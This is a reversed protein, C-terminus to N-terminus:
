SEASCRRYVYPLGWDADTEPVQDYLYFVDATVWFAFFSPGGAIPEWMAGGNLRQLEIAAEAETERPGLYFIHTENAAQLRVPLECTALVTDPVGVEMTPVSIAWEGAFPAASGPDIDDFLEPKALPMLAFASSPEALFVAALLLPRTIDPLM